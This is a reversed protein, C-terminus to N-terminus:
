KKGFYKNILKKKEKTYGELIESEGDDTIDGEEYMSELVEDGFEAGDFDWVEKNGKSYNPIFLVASMGINQATKLTLFDLRTLFDTIILINSNDVKYMKGGIKIKVSKGNKVAKALNSKVSQWFESKARIGKPLDEVKLPTVKGRKEEVFKGKVRTREIVKKKAKKVTESSVFGGGMKRYQTRVSYVPDIGKEKAREASIFKGNERYQKVTYTDQFFGAKKAPDKKKTNQAM